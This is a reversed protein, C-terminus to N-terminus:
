NNLPLLRPLLRQEYTRVRRGTKADAHVVTKVPAPISDALLPMAVLLTYFLFGPIVNRIKTPHVGQAMFKSALM